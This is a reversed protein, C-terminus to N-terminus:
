RSGELYKKLVRLGEPPVCFRGGGGRLREACVEDLGFWAVSDIEEPQVTIDRIDVDRRLVYVFVYENDRFPKGHFRAEYNVRFDGIHELEDPCAELGLEERLERLASALPGCGAPIHGASSTDYMGPYSDKCASRKQLLVETGAAGRRLIWVHATRHPVGDRHAAGREIIEGIPAGSEDCIDFFEM